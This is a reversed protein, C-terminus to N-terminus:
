MREAVPNWTAVTGDPAASFIADGSSEVIAALRSRMEQAERRETIDILFGQVFAPEGHEDAVLRTEDLVWVCRGDPRVIRYEETTPEGTERLRAAAALVRERDEPHVVRGLLDAKM